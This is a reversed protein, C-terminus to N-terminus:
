QKVVRSVGWRVGDFVCLFYVGPAQDSLDLTYPASRLAGTYVPRGDASMLTLELRTGAPVQQLTILGTAPNPAPPFLDAVVPEAGSVVPLDALPRRWLGADCAVYLWPGLAFIENCNANAPIGTNFATWNAGRNTSLIAKGEAGAALLVGQIVSLGNSDYPSSKFQASGTGSRWIANGPDKYRIFGGALSTYLRNKYLLLAGCASGFAGISSWTHGGDTSQFISNGSALYLDATDAIFHLAGLTPIDTSLTDPDPKNDSLALLLGSYTMALLRDGQVALQAVDSIAPTYPQWNIGDASESLVANASYAVYRGKWKRISGVQDSCEQWSQGADGSFFTTNLYTYLWVKDQDTQGQIFWSSSKGLGKNRPEWLQTDPDYRYFGEDGTTFAYLHGGFVSLGALGPDFPTAGFSQWQIGDTTAYLGSAGYAILRNDYVTLGPIPIPPSAETWHLGQDESRWVPSTSTGPVITLFLRGDVAYLQNAMLGAPLGETKILSDQRHLYIADKGQLLVTQGAVVIRGAQGNPGGAPLQMWSEGFDDSYYADPTYVSTGTVGASYLRDGAFQCYLANYNPQLGIGSVPEWQLGDNQSRYLWNLDGKVSSTLAWNEHLAFTYVLYSGQFTGLGTNRRMWRGNQYVAVGEAYSIAFVKGDRVFVPTFAGFSDNSINNWHKGADTSQFFQAILDGTSVVLSDGQGTLIGLSYTAPQNVRTWQARIGGACCLLLLLTTLPKAMM